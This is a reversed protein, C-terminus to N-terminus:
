YKLIYTKPSFLEAQLECIGSVGWAGCFTVVFNQHSELMTLLVGLRLTWRAEIVGMGRYRDWTWEKM